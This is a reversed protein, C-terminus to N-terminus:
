CPALTNLSVEVDATMKWDARRCYNRVWSVSARQESLWQLPPTAYDAIGDEDFRVSAIYHTTEIRFWTM